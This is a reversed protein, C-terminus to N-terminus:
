PGGSPDITATRAHRPLCSERDLKLNGGDEFGQSTVTYREITRCYMHRVRRNSLSRCAASGRQPRKIIPIRLCAPEVFNNRPAVSRSRMVHLQRDM